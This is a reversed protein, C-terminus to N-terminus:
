QKYEWKKNVADGFEWLNNKKELYKQNTSTETTYYTKSRQTLIFKGEGAILEAKKSDKSFILGAMQTGTSNTLKLDLEFIRVCNQLIESWLYGASGICGHSDRDNGTIVIPNNEKVKEQCHIFLFLIFFIIQIPKM